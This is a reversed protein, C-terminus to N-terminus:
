APLRPRPEVQFAVRYCDAPPDSETIYGENRVRSIDPEGVVRMGSAEIDRRIAAVDRESAERSYEVIQSM